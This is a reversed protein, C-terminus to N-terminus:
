AAIDKLYSDLWAQAKEKSPLDSELIAKDETRMVRWKGGGYHKVIYEPEDETEAKATSKSLEVKRMLAVHAEVKNASKIYFEAFWTGDAATVEIRDGKRLKSAVHTWYAPDGMMELTTGSEPTASWVTRCFEAPKFQPDIIKM